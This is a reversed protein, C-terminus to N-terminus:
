PSHIHVCIIQEFIDAAAVRGFLLANLFRAFVEVAAVTRPRFAFVHSKSGLRLDTIVNSNTSTNQIMQSFLSFDSVQSRSMTLNAPDKLDKDRQACVTYRQPTLSEHPGEHHEVQQPCGKLEWVNRLM